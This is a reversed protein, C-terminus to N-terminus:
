VACFLPPRPPFFFSTLLYTSKKSASSINARNKKLRTNSSGKNRFAWSRSLFFITCCLRPLFFFVSSFFAANKTILGSPSKRFNKKETNKVKRTVFRGFFAKFVFRYFIFIFIFIFYLLYSSKKKASRCIYTVKTMKKRAAWRPVFDLVCGGPPRRHVQL